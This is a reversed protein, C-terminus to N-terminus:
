WLVPHCFSANEICRPVLFIDPAVVETDGDDKGNSKAINMCGIIDLGEKDDSNGEESDDKKAVVDVINAIPDVANSFFLKLFVIFQLNETRQGFLSM